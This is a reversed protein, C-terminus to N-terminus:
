IKLNLFDLAKEAANRRAIRQNLGMGTFVMNNHLKIEVQVYGHSSLGLVRTHISKNYKKQVMQSLVTVPNEASYVPKIQNTIILKLFTTIGKTAYFIESEKVRKTSVLSLLHETLADEGKIKFAYTEDLKKKYFIVSYQMGKLKVEIEM